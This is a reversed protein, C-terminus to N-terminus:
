YKESPKARETSQGSEPMSVSQGEPTIVMVVDERMTQLQEPTPEESPNPSTANDAAMVNEGSEKALTKARESPYVFEVGVSDGRFFLARLAPPNDGATEFLAIMSDEPAKGLDAPIGIMTVVLKNEDGDFIKVIPHGPTEERTIVYKGASLSKGPVELPGDLAVKIEKQVAQANAHVSFVLCLLVFLFLVAKKM